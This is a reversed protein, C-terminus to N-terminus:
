EGAGLRWAQSVANSIRDLVQQIDQPEGLPEHLHDAPLECRGPILEAVGAAGLDTGIRGIEPELVDDALLVHDHGERVFAIRLGLREILVARLATSFLLGTAVLGLGLNLWFVSSLLEDTPRSTQVLGASTDMDRLIEIFGIFVAAMAVLGFDTPSLLRALVISTVLSTLRRGTVSILSWKAGSAASEALSM